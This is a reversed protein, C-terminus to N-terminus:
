DFISQHYKNKHAQFCMEIHKENNRTLSLPPLNELTFFEAASTEINEQFVSQIYDCEVFIKYISYPYPQSLMNKGDLIAILKKPHVQAGAEEICEKMINEKLSFEIDAWGGPLSWLGDIKEKVLLIKNQKFVAARVDIKPTQYGTESAFLDRIKESEMETYHSMIEISIDRIEEFRERDYKDKSYELGAQAISQLKKAHELWKLQHKM